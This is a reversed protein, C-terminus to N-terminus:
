ENTKACRSKFYRRSGLVAIKFAAEVTFAITLVMEMNSLVEAKKDGINHGEMGVVVVKVVIAWHM